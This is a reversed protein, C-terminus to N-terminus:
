KQEPALAPVPLCAHNLAVHRQPTLTRSGGLAYCACITQAQKQKIIVYWSKGQHVEHHSGHSNM